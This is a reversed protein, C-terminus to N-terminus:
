PPHRPDESGNPTGDPSPEAPADPPVPAPQTAAPAGRLVRTSLQLMRTQEEVVDLATDLHSALSANEELLAESDQALKANRARQILFFAWGAVACIFLLAFGVTLLIGGATSM